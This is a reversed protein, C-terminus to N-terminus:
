KKSYKKIVSYATYLGLEGAKSLDSIGDATRDTFLKALGRNYYAEALNNDIDIARNYDDIAASYDKRSAYLNGRNYYLYACQPNYKIAQSFDSIVAAAKISVGEGQSANFENIKSQCVARQWYAMSSTSDSLLVASLDDIASDFNQTVSYAVARGLLVTPRSTDGTGRALIQSLSDIRSFYFASRKEDLM